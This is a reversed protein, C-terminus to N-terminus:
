KAAIEKHLTKRHARRGINRVQYEDLTNVFRELVTAEIMARRGFSATVRLNGTYNQRRIWSKDRGVAAGAKTRRQGGSDGARWNSRESAAMM